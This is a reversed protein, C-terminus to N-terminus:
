RWATASKPAQRMALTYGALSIVGTVLGTMALAPALFQEGGMLSSGITVITPALSVGVISSIVSFVAMCAGREENPILVTVTTSAVISTITGSLLLLFFMLQFGGVGAMVPFLATPIGLATAFIAGILIGGRRGSKHGFDAGFGGIVSGLVGAVFIIAGLWGAFAIPQLHYNRILVPTAWIAAAADAMSVGIQGAFLPV